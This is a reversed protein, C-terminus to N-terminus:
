GSKRQRGPKAIPEKRIAELRRRMEEKSVIRGSDISDLGRDLLEASRDDANTM